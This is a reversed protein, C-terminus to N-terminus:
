QNPFTMRDPTVGANAAAYGEDRYRDAYAELRPRDLEIGLGPGDPMRLLGGDYSVAPSAYDEAMVDQYAQGALLFGPSSVAVALSANMAVPSPGFSHVVLPLGASEALAARKKFALIGGEQHPDTLLVDCAGRKVLDLIRHGTWAAQNAAVPVGSATRVHRLGDLDFMSTPQEIYELDYPALKRLIRVATGPSWAENADARLRLRPGIAERVRRVVELDREEDIGVKVYFTGYGREIGERAYEVMWDIDEAGWVYFMAPQAAKVPGGLLDVVSRDLSKGIADWCAIEIGGWILGATERFYHWGGEGLIRATMAEIDCCRSGQVIREMDRVLEVTAEPSPGFGVVVEGIGTVGTTTQLELVASTMGTRTGWAWMEGYAFPVTILTIDIREIRPQTDIRAITTM